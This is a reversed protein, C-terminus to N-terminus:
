PNRSSTATTQNSQPWFPEPLAPLEKVLPLAPALGPDAGGQMGDGMVSALFDSIPDGLVSLDESESTEDPAGSNAAPSLQKLHELRTFGVTMALILLLLCLQWRRCRGMLEERPCAHHAEQALM